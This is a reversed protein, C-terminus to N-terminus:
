LLGSKYLWIHVRFAIVWDWWMPGWCFGEATVRNIWDDTLIRGVFMMNWSPRNTYLPLNKQLMCNHIEWLQTDQYFFSHWKIRNFGSWSGPYEPFIFQGPYNNLYESFIFQDPYNDWINQSYSNAQIITGSIRLIHTPRFYQYLNLLLYQGHWPM